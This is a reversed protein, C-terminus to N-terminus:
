RIRRFNIVWVWPNTDWGFGRKANLSDWLEIFPHFYDDVEVWAGTLDQCESDVPLVGEAGCDDNTIDQVREVQVNTVELTIRSAWRPMHISPRWKDVNWLGEPWDQTELREDAAYYVTRELQQWTERVWLEDGSNGYPCFQIMDDPCDVVGEQHDKWVFEVYPHGSDSPQIIPQPKIVRRAQTKREDLIARVMEGNFLIPYIKM